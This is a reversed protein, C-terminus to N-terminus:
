DMYGMIYAIQMDQVSVQERPSTSFLITSVKTELDADVVAHAAVKLFLDSAM